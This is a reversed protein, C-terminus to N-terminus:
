NKARAVIRVTAELPIRAPAFCQQENCAQYSLFGKISATGDAAAALDLDTEFVVAGEYVRLPKESFTFRREVHPPFRVASLTGASTTLAVDTPILFTEAPTHSNVHWRPGITLEVSVTTKAGAPASPAVVLRAQVDPKEAIVAQAAANLKEAISQKADYQCTFKQRLDLYLKEAVEPM